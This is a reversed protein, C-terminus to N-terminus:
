PFLDSSTILRHDPPIPRFAHRLALKERWWGEYDEITQVEIEEHKVQCGVELYVDLNALDPRHLDGQEFRGWMEAYLDELHRVLSPLNFLTCSDREARLKERLSKCRLPDQGLAVARDVFEDASTVALEPTGAARVLSGCVRSAFSRGSLTLVPVGMWLADSATTHAGYPTTDLFLDALTYRALHHPNALKDAFIVREPAVGRQAAHQRLRASAAETSGLLWLVSGPVRALIMLWRDFTFQSIKHAGNFCCYVMASEPLGAERRTPQREAV